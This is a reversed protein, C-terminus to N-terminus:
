DDGGAFREAVDLINASRAPPDDEIFAAVLGSYGPNAAALPPPTNAGACARAPAPEALVPADGALQRLRERESVVSMNEAVRAVLQQYRTFARNFTRKSRQNEQIEAKSAGWRMPNQSVLEGLLRGDEDFALAQGLNLPDFRVIVTRGISLALLAASESNAPAYRENLLEICGGEAM